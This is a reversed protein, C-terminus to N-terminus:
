HECQEGCRGTDGSAASGEPTTSIGEEKVNEELEDDDDEDEDDEGDDDDDDDREREPSRAGSSECGAVLPPLATTRTREAAPSM